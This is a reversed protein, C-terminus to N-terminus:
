RLQMKDERTTIYNKTNEINKRNMKNIKRSRKPLIHLANQM